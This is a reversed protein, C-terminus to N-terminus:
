SSTVQRARRRLRLLLVAIAAAVLSATLVAAKVRATGAPDSSFALDAVLLSVTFGIGSLAAVALMDRWELDPNLDARTFTATLWAGGFVGVAKGVVLGVMVGVAAPDRVMAGLAAASVPVGAAFLAFAPVALGASLPRIRHELREAPSHEEDPDPRVRTLLGLAVGAVTAHVGSEHVFWWAALALPVYIWPTRVRRHQLYAYVGVLVVAVALAVLDLHDTFFVAIVTIAGLDDVVALTLLFARLAPPLASGAVALVALAFAIDTATPVAWGGLASRDGSGSVVAVYLLAPVVMGALAAVVPVLALSLKRLSGTVLERKLELGAVYFFIALLGDAAWQEVSLPGIAFERVHEYGDHWPSNAWVLAIVAAALLLAGGVTEQRLVDGLFSREAGTQDPLVLRRLRETPRAM